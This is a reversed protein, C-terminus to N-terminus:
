EQARNDSGEPHSKLEEPATPTETATADVVEGFRDPGFRWVLVRGQGARRERRKPSVALLLRDVVLAVLGIALLAAFVGLAVFGVFVVAIVIAVVVVMGVLTGLCGLGARPRGGIAMAAM